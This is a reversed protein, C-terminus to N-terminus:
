LQNVEIFAGQKLSSITQEVATGAKNKLIHAAIKDKMEHESHIIEPKKDELKVIHLGFSSQFVNSIEGPSLNFAVDEYSKVLRGREFYGLDGGGKASSDQSKQTALKEFDAGSDLEKKIEIMRNMAENMEKESAEPSVKTLIHRTRVQEKETFKSLNQLYFNHIESESVTIADLIKEQLWKKASLQQKLNERFSDENFGSETLKENFQVTDEFKSQYQDFAKKIEEDEAFISDKQAANWLLQQGILIDLVETRIKKLLDPDQIAAVTKGRKQLYYDISKVLKAESIEEGQVRAVVDVSAAQANQGLTLLMLLSLNLINKNKM